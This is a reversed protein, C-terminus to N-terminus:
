FGFCRLHGETQRCCAVIRLWIVELCVLHRGVSFGVCHCERNNLATFPRPKPGLSQDRDAAPLSSPKKTKLHSFVRTPEDSYFSADGVPTDSTVRVVAEAGAPSLLPSLAVQMAAQTEAGAYHLCFGHVFNPIRKAVETEVDLTFGREELCIQLDDFNVVRGESLDHVTGRRLADEPRGDQRLGTASSIPSKQANPMFLARRRDERDQAEAAPFEGDQSSSIDVLEAGSPTTQASARLTEEITAPFCVDNSVVLTYLEGLFRQSEDSLDTQSSVETGPEDHADALVPGGRKRVAAVDQLLRDTATVVANAPPLFVRGLGTSTVGLCFGIFPGCNGAERSSTM